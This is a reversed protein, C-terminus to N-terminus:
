PRALAAGFCYLAKETRVFLRDRDIVPTAYTKGHLNHSGIIKWDPQNAVVTVVGQESAFYVKGDGTV